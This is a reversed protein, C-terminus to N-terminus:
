GAQIRSAFSSWFSTMSILKLMPLYGNGEFDIITSTPPFALLITKKQNWLLWRFFILNFSFWVISIKESSIRALVCFRCLYVLYNDKTWWRACKEANQWAGLWREGKAEGKIKVHCFIVTIGVIYAGSKRISESCYPCKLISVAM